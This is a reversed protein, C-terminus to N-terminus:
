NRILALVAAAGAMLLAVGAPIRMAVRVSTRRAQRGILPPVLLSGASGVAYVLGFATGRDVLSVNQFLDGILTPFIPGLLLGTLLLAITSGTHRHRSALNGLAVASALALCVVIWAECGHPLYRRDLLWATALRSLLFVLWFGSLWRAAWRPSEGADALYTTAWAGLAGEIPLYLLLVLATLWIAPQMVIPTLSGPPSSLELASAPVWVSIVAPALCLLALLSLSRRFGVARVLVDVLAPTLLAGLGLFVEGFNLAAGPRGDFFARPMLVTAAASLCAGGAGLLLLAYRCGAYSRALALAALALATLLSGVGVVLLIGVHDILWGSALILPILAVNFTAVLGGIRGEDLDLRKALPLKISGLLALVMGFVVATAITLPAFQTWAAM